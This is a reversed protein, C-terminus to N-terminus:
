IAGSSCPIWRRRHSWSSRPRADLQAKVDAQFDALQASWAGYSGGGMCSRWTSTRKYPRAGTQAFRSEAPLLGYADPWVFVNYIVEGYPKSKLVAFPKEFQKGDMLEVIDPETEANPWPHAVAPELAETRYGQYWDSALEFLIAWAESSSSPLTSRPSRGCGEGCRPEAPPDPYGDEDDDAPIWGTGASSSWWWIGMASSTLLAIEEAPARPTNGGERASGAPMLPLSADWDWESLYKELPRWAFGRADALDGPADRITAADLAGGFALEQLSTPV